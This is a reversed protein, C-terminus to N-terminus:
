QRRTEGIARLLGLERTREYISLSLTNAIGMLAILIALALLVYVIGLMMDVGQTETAIFQSRNQVDPAGYADVTRQVARKGNTVDLDLVGGLKTPDAITVTQTGTGVLARGRGLGTADKVVPLQGVDRALQPSIGGGGFRGTSVVLDGTFSQSVSNDISAKLS